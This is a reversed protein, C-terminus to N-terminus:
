LAGDEGRGGVLVTYQDPATDEFRVYVMTGDYDVLEAMQPISEPEDPLLLVEQGASYSVADFYLTLTGDLGISVRNKDRDMLSTRIVSEIEGLGNEGDASKMVTVLKPYSFGPGGALEWRNSVRFSCWERFRLCDRVLQEAPRGPHFASVARLVRTLVKEREAGSAAYENARDYLELLAQYVTRCEPCQALHQNVRAVTKMFGHPRTDAFVYESIEEFSLHVSTDNKM